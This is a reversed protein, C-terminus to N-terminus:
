LGRLCTRVEDKRRNILGPCKSSKLYCSKGGAKYWNMMARCGEAVKGQNTLKLVQSGYYGYPGVNYAFSVHSVFTDLSVPFKLKHFVKMMFTSAQKPTLKKCFEETVQMGAYVGNTEGNCITWVGGVDQYAITSIGEKEELMPVLMMLAASFFATSGYVLTRAGM